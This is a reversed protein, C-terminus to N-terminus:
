RAGARRSLRRGYWASGAAYEGGVTDPAVGPIWQGDNADRLVPVMFANEVAVTVRPAEAWTKACEASGFPQGACMVPRSGYHHGILKPCQTCTRHPAIDPSEVIAPRLAPLVATM